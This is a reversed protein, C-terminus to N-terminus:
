FCCSKIIISCIWYVSFASYDARGLSLSTECYTVNDRRKLTALISDLKIMARCRSAARRLAIYQSSLRVQVTRAMEQSVRFVNVATAEKLILVVQIQTVCLIGRLASMWMQINRNNLIFFVSIITTEKVKVTHEMALTAMMVNM